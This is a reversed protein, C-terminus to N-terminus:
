VKLKKIKKIEDYLNNIIAKRTSYAKKYEEKIQKYNELTEDQELLMKIGELYFNKAKEKKAKQMKDDYKEIQELRKIEESLAKIYNESCYIEYEVDDIVVKFLTRVIIPNNKGLKANEAIKGQRYQM